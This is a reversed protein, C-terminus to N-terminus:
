SRQIKATIWKIVEDERWAVVNVSIRIRKPFTGGREMRWITSRSLGTRRRVEAFRLLRLPLASIPMHTNAELGDAIVESLPDLAVRKSNM